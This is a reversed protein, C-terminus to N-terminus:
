PRYTRPPNIPLQSTPSRTIHDSYQNKQISIDVDLMIYDIGLTNLLHLTYDTVLHVGLYINRRLNGGEISIENNNLDMASISLDSFHALSDRAMQMVKIVIRTRMMMM